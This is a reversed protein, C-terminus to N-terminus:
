SRAQLTTKSVKIEAQHTDWPTHVQSHLDEVIYSGEMVWVAM